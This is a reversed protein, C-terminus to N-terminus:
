PGGSGRFRVLFAGLRNGPVKLPVSDGSKTEPMDEVRVDGACLGCQKTGGARRCKGRHKKAPCRAEADRFPQAAAIAASCGTM